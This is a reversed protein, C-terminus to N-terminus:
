KKIINKDVEIARIIGDDIPISFLNLFNEDLKEELWLKEKEENDLIVPMRKKTNHIKELLSNARTTVITFSKIEEGTEPNIWRDYLGALTFIQKESHTIFYPIKKGNLDHWEYFGDVIVLCKNKKLLHRYSPKEFINEIRANFTKKRIESAYKEDKVWNPILGWTLLSIKDATEQCIVPVEPFTFAKIVTNPRFKDGEKFEKGFNNELFERTKNISITYCM